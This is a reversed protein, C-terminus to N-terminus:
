RLMLAWKLEDLALCHGYAGFDAEQLAAVAAETRSRCVKVLVDRCWKQVDQCLRAKEELRRAQTRALLAASSHLSKKREVQEVTSETRYAHYFAAILTQVGGRRAVLECNDDDLTTLTSLTVAAGFLVEMVYLNHEMAALIYPICPRIARRSSASATSVTSLFDFVSNLTTATLSQWRQLILLCAGPLGFRLFLAVNDEQLSMDALFQTTVCLLVGDDTGCAELLEACSGAINDTVRPVPTVNALAETCARLSALAQEQSLLRQRDECDDTFYQLVDSFAEECQLLVDASGAM